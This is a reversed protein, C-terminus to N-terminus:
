GNRAPAPKGPAPSNGAPPGPPRAAAKEPFVVPVLDTALPLPPRPKPTSDASPPVTPPAVQSLDAPPILPTRASLQPAKGSTAPEAEPAAGRLIGTGSSVAEHRAAPRASAPSDPQPTRIPVPKAGISSGRVVEPELAAERLPPPPTPPARHGDVATEPPRSAGDVQPAAAAPPPHPADDNAPKAALPSSYAAQVRPPAESSHPTQDHRDALKAPAAPAEARSPPTPKAVRQETAALVHRPTAQSRSPFLHISRVPMLWAAGAVLVVVAAAAAGGRVRERLPAPSVRPQRALATRM